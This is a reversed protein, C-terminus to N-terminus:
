IDPPMQRAILAHKHAMNVEKGSVRQHNGYAGAITQPPIGSFKNGSIFFM